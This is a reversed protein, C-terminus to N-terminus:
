RNQVKRDVPIEGTPLPLADLYKAHYSLPDDSDINGM